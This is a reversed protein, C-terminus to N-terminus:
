GVGAGVIAGKTCPMIYIHWFKYPRLCESVGHLVSFHGIRQERRQMYKDPFM